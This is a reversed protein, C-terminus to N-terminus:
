KDTGEKVIIATDQSEQIVKSLVSLEQVAKESDQAQTTAGISIGEVAKSVEESSAVNENVNNLLLKSADALENASTQIEKIIKKNNKRISDLSRGLDGVEDKRKLYKEEVDISLNLDALIKSYGAAVIIPKVFKSGIFFTIVIAIIIAGIIIYLLNRSLRFVDELLEKEPADVAISWGLEGFPHYGLYYKEGKYVYGEAGIKGKSMKNIITALEILKPDKKSLDIVNERRLVIGVDEHAITTGSKDIIFASGTKKIKINKVANSLYEANVIGVIVGQIKGENMIPASVFFQSKATVKNFLLDSFYSNGKMAEKYYILNEVNTKTGSIYQANGKTDVIFM